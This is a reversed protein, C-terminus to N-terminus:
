KIMTGGGLVDDIARLRIRKLTEVLPETEERFNFPLDRRVAEVPRQQKFIAQEIVKLCKNREKFENDPLRRAYADGYGILAAYLNLNKVALEYGSAQVAKNAEALKLEALKVAAEVHDKAGQEKLVLRSEADNLGAPLKPAEGQPCAAGVSLRLLCVLIVAKRLM